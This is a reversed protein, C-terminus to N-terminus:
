AAAARSSLSNLNRRLTKLALRKDGYAGGGHINITDANTWEAVQAQYELDAVALGVVCHDPSNLVM